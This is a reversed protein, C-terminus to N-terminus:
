SERQRFEASSSIYASPMPRNPLSRRSAVTCLVVRGSADQVIGCEQASVRPQSLCASTHAGTKTHRCVADRRVMKAVEVTGLLVAHAM